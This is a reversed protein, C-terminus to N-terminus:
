KVHLDRERHILGRPTVRTHPRGRFAVTIAEGSSVTKMTAGCGGLATPSPRM